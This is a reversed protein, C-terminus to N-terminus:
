ADCEKKKGGVYVTSKPDAIRESYTIPVGNLSDPIERSSSKTATVHSIIRDTRMMEAMDREFKKVRAAHEKRGQVIARNRWLTTSLNRNRNM